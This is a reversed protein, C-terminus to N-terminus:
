YECLDAHQEDYIEINFVTQCRSCYFSGERQSPPKAKKPVYFQAKGRVECARAYGNERMLQESLLCEAVLSYKQTSSCNDITLLSSNSNGIKKKTDTSWSHKQGKPGALLVDHSITKPTVKKDAGHTEAEKKLRNVALMASTKYISIMSCKKFVEFEENQAREFADAPASYINLCHNVMVKYMQTRVNCSIKTQYAELVPPALKSADIDNLNSPVHAVRSTSKSSTQAATQRYPLDKAKNLEMVKRKAAEIAMRQSIPTFMPRKPPRLFILPNVLPTKDLDEEKKQIDAELKAIEEEKARKETLAMQIAVDQRRQATLLATQVHNHRMTLPKQITSANEHAQRKKVDFNPDIDATKPAQQPEEQKVPQYNDFIMRCQEEIDDEDLEEDSVPIETKEEIVKRKKSDSEKDRSKSKHKHRSSASPSSSSSSKHHSSSKHRSSKHSSSKHSSKHSSKKHSSSSSHRSSSKKEVKQEEIPETPEKSTLTEEIKSPVYSVPPPEQPVYSNTPKTITTPTYTAVPLVPLPLYELKPKSQKKPSEEPEVQDKSIPTAHYVPKM